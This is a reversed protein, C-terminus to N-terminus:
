PRKRCRARPSHLGEGVAVHEDGIALADALDGAAAVGHPGPFGGVGGVLVEDAQLVGPAQGVAVGDDIAPRVLPRFVVLITGSLHLGDFQGGVLPDDPDELGPGWGGRKAGGGGDLEEVGGGSRFVCVEAVDM